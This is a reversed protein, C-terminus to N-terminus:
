SLSRSVYAFMASAMWFWVVNLAAGSITTDRWSLMLPSLSTAVMGLFFVMCSLVPANQFPLRRLPCLVDFVVGRNM